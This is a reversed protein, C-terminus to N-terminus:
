QSRSHAARSFGHGEYLTPFTECRGVTDGTACTKGSGLRALVM